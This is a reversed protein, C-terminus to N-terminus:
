QGNIRTVDGHLHPSRPTCPHGPTALAAGARPRRAGAISRGGSLPAGPSRTRTCWGSPTHSTSWPRPAAESGQRRASAGRTIHDPTAGGGRGDDTQISPQTSTLSSFSFAVPIIYSGPPAGAPTTTYPLFRFWILPPTTQTRM